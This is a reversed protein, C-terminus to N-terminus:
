SYLMSPQKLLRSFMYSILCFIDSHIQTHGALAKWRGGMLQGEDGPSLSIAERYGLSVWIDDTLGVGGLISVLWPSLKRRFGPSRSCPSSQHFEHHFPTRLAWTLRPHKPKAHYRMTWLSCHPVTGPTGEYQGDVNAGNMDGTSM